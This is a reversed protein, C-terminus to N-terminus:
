PLKILSLYPLLALKNSLGHQRGPDDISTLDISKRRHFTNFHAVFPAGGTGSFLSIYLIRIDTRDEYDTRSLGGSRLLICM